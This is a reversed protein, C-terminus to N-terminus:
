RGVEMIEFEMTGAPVTIETKDGVKKGLLGRA